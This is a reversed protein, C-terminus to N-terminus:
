PSRDPESRVAKSDSRHGQEDPGEDRGASDRRAIGVSVITLGLETARTRILEEAEAAVAEKDKLFADLDRTGVVARLALQAERYLAQRYDDSASIARHADAVRYTAIANLRLTVKDATM